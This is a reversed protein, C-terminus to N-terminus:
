AGEAQSSGEATTNPGERLVVTAKISQSIGQLFLLAFAIPVLAKVPYRPLGGPDPSGERVAWSDMVAPWTAWLMLVCFPLLFLITGALDIAAKKKPSLRGFLVDVRVHADERLAWAAALLFVASFLYWQGEGLANLSVSLGLPQGAYRLIAGLAGVFIMALLLWGTMRGIWGNLRDISNSLRLLTPM